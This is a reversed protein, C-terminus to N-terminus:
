EQSARWRCILFIAVLQYSVVLNLSMITPNQQLRDKHKLCNMSTRIHSKNDKACHM